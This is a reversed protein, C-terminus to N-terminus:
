KFCRFTVNLRRNNAEDEKSTVVVKPVSHVHTSQCEGGMIVLTNHELEVHFVSENEKKEKSEIVFFRKAPGFSFSFIESKDQLQKQNDSHKGISGDHEYWNVLAQNLNPNMTRAFEDLLRQLIPPLNSDAHHVLGSFKYDKLYNKTYRPCTILKGAIQIMHKEKPKLTWLHEFEKITLGTKSDLKLLKIWSNKCDNL